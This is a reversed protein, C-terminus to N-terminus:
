DENSPIISLAQAEEPFLGSTYRYNDVSFADSYESPQLLVILM